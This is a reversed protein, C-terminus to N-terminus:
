FLFPFGDALSVQEQNVQYDPGVPRQNEEPFYVLRCRLNLQGSFWASHIDSVEFVTVPDDFVHTAISTRKHPQGFLVSISDDQHHIDLRDVGLSLKLLAMDPHTRQTMFNGEEDVLMWRRDHLLGKELVKSSKLRIGGLSKIPYIWIDSLRLHGM